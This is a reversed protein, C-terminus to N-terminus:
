TEINDVRRLFVNMWEENRREPRVDKTITIKMLSLSPLESIIRNLRSENIDLFFRGNRMGEFDGHKFSMYFIGDRHLHKAMREVVSILEKCSLHLLSSCAWIGDFMKDPVYDQFAAHIVDNGTFERAIKCLEKSGDVSTVDFGRAQFYKSDRGSGCGLDLIAGGEAIYSLFEDQLESLDANLTSATFNAANKDYYDLTLQTMTDHKIKSM